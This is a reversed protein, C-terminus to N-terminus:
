CRQMFDRYAMMIGENLSIKASWGLAKLRTVDLLKQPAGDPKNLDFTLVGQFGVVEAVREALEHISLDYGVGINIFEGINEKDYNEMLFVCADALDDSYLFERRPLGSGWVSVQGDGRMKAEHMKRILASMVHSSELNYNDGPGYINTPMVSIFSTGYQRNYASCMKIGAIKAIAYSENTPELIGTLLYAEKMPQPSFKPYICSSGLFLLKKVKAMYAGHIISSQIMLNQYIFDAPHTSNALIGGVKAAALFVYDPKERAFFEAVASQDTLDLAQHLRVVINSYGSRKLRRVLASGVLGQHGAVYIKDELQMAKNMAIM